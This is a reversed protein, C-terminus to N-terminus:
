SKMSAAILGFWLFFVFLFAMLARFIMWAITMSISPLGQSEIVSKQYLHRGLISILAVGLLGVLAFTIGPDLDM